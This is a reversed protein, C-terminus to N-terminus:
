RHNKEYIFRLGELTLYQNLIVERKMHCIVKEAHGGTAAVKCGCGMEEEMRSIMGDAMSATGLILGSQM